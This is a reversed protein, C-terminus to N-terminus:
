KFFVIYYYLLPATFLFSDFRDLMGGHGPLLIDSDKINADRKILSEALDSFQGFIAIFFGLLVSEVVGLYSKLFFGSLIPSVVSASIIAALFGETSKKPSISEALKRKGLKIGFFYAATDLVWIVLFLFYVLEMGYPKLYYIRALHAFAWPIFFIGLFTIGIREIAKQPTKKFIEILIVVFLIVTIVMPVLQHDAKQSFSTSSLFISVFFLYGLIIGLVTHPNYSAKKSILFFERLSFLLIGSVLIFYPVGGWYVSLIVLPIGIVATLIRPLIM